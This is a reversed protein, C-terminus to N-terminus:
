GIVVASIFTGAFAFVLIVAFNRFFQEQSLKDISLFRSLVFVSVRVQRLDYGSSLIIPPLLVNMMITPKFSVMDQVVAGPSLRLVLGVFM